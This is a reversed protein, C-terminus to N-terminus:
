ESWRHQRLFHECSWLVRPHPLAHQIATHHNMDRMDPRAGHALLQQVIPFSGDRTAYMLPTAGHIDMGDVAVTGASSELLVKVAELMNLWAAMGLPTVDNL